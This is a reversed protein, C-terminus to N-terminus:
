AIGCLGSAAASGGALFRALAFGFRFAFGVFFCFLWAPPGAAFRRGLLFSGANVHWPGGIRSEESFNSKCVQNRLKIPEAPYARFGRWFLKRNTVPQEPVPDGASTACDYDKAHTSSNADSSFWAAAM